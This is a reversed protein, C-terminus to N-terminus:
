ARVIKLKIEQKANFAETLAKFFIRYATRSDHVASKGRATGLLICGETDQATNGSHIRVGIFQPVDLIHPMLKGFRNSMDIIVKYEGLPIATENKVKKTGKKELRRDCDELTFCTFQGDVYLRGHTCQDNLVERVLLLHM